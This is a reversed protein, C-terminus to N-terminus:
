YRIVRGDKEAKKDLYRGTLLASATVAAAAIITGAINNSVYYVLLAITFAFSAGISAAFGTYYGPPIFKHTLAVRKETSKIWREIISGTKQPATEIKYRMIELQKFYEYPHNDFIRKKDLLSLLNALRNISEKTKQRDEKEHLDGLWILYDSVSIM